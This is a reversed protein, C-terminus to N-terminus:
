ASMTLGPRSEPSISLAQKWAPWVVEGVLLPYLNRRSFM